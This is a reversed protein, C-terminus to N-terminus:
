FYFNEVAEVVKGMDNPIKASEFMGIPSRAIKEGDTQTLFHKVPKNEEMESTAFLIVNVMGEPTLYKDTAQGIAKMKEIVTFGDKAVIRESHSILICIQDKRCKKLHDIIRKNLSLIENYREFVANGSTRKSEVDNIFKYSLVYQYDDIVIYKINPNKSFLDISKICVDLKVDYDELTLYNKNEKNYQTKWGKFPLGKGIVDIYGTKNPPLGKIGLQPVPVLSTTKGSSADGLVYIVEAM